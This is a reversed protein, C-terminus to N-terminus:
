FTGSVTYTVTTSYNDAETVASINAEYNVVITDWAATGAVSAWLWASAWAISAAWNAVAYTSAAALWATADTTSTGASQGVSAVDLSFGETGAAQAARTVFPIINTTTAGVFNTAAASVVYGGNANTAVTVTTDTTSDTAATPSLVGLDVTANSIAMSLIPLVRASVVVNNTTDWATTTGFVGNDVSFAITYYEAALVDTAGITLTTANTVTCTQVAVASNAGGANTKTITASCTWAFWAGTVVIWTWWTVVATANNLAAANVTLNAANMALLAIASAWAIIKKLTKM